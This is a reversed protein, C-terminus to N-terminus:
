WRIEGALYTVAQGGIHVRDGALECEFEGGRASIQRAHLREKGLKEAWYPVLTCHSSGTAPDEDVGARPAFFRSVFDIGNAGNAPATAIVGLADLRALEVFDPTLGRVESENEFVALFDRSKRVELPARGLAKVLVMPTEVRVAPRAPFDLVYLGDVVRVPLGGARRSAFRVMDGAHGRHRVLVHAAAVTAHGCLDVEIRPTFWRIAWGGSEDAQPVIFATESLNNEAAIAQMLSDDLWSELPCVAAPNGRFRTGTFADVVYIPIATM